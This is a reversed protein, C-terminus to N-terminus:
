ALLHMEVEVFAHQDGLFLACVSYILLPTLLVFCVFVYRKSGMGQDPIFGTKTERDVIQQFISFNFTCCYAVFIGIKLASSFVGDCDIFKRIVHCLDTSVCLKWLSEVSVFLVCPPDIFM